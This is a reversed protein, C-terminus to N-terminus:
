PAAPAPHDDQRLRAHLAVTEPAPRADLQDHLLRVLDDYQQLARGRNGLAAHCRMLGRHAAELLPDHAILRAFTEAADTFRRERGQLGGLTLLVQEHRRRLETRHPEAWPGVAADALFDGPYRDAAATLPDIAAPVAGLAVAADAAARFQEVDYHLPSVGDVRYTGGTFRVRDAGGVARRLFKLCTHFSNRLEADSADPWLALGIEAKTSRPRTLLHYLLERPKAYGWDEPGLPRDGVQVRSRGLAHVRLAPLTEHVQAVPRFLEAAPPSAPTPVPAPRPEPAPHAALAMAVAQELSLVAGAATARHWQEDGAAARVARTRREHEAADAPPVPTGISHRVRDAVAILRAGTAPDALVGALAHLVSATRWRDGLDHHLTLSRRLLTVADGTRGAATDILALQETAWATAETLDLRGAITLAQQLLPRAGAPEGGRLTAAALDVLAGVTGESDGLDQFRRLADRSLDRARPHDGELWATFGKAKIARAVGAPEGLRRWLALSDDHHHHAEAYRGQERAISGLSQLAAAVGRHDGVTTHLLVARRLRDAAPGYECQLFELTGLATLAKAQAALPAGGGDGDGPEAASVAAQLWERGEAYRGRLRWYRGLAGALRIGHRSDHHHTWTLAARLNDQDRHLRDLWLHQDPGALGHEAQEALHLLHAAHRAAVPARRDGLREDAYQRVVELLRYREEDGDTRVQVLSKEVLRTLLDLTGTGGDAADAVAEAAALTFGGRFVSLRAFLDREAAPLLDHSWDLTARLTAQRPPVDRNTTMLLPVANDLREVIRALPLVRLRAAALELALPMGDLRRCLRAVDAANDDTVAFPPSVLRARDTFLQAAESDALDAATTAHGPPLSLGDVWWTTEGAVALPERSTTMVRLTPCSRLLHATLHAAADVLHECNDLVLLATRDALHTVLTMLLPRGPVEAVGLAEAVAPALLAPGDVQALSIWLTDGLRDAVASALRTKGSGGPGVLSLLRTDHLRRILATTEAVRGVFRTLPAPAAPPALTPPVAAASPAIATPPAAAPPAALVATMTSPELPDSQAPRPPAPNWRQGAVM